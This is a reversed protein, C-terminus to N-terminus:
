FIVLHDATKSMEIANIALEVDINGKVRHRGLSDTFERLTTVVQHGNYDLSRDPPPKHGTGTRWWRLM